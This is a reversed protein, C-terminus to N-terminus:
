LFVLQPVRLLVLALILGQSLVLTIITLKTSVFNRIVSVVQSKAISSTASASKMFLLHQLGKGPGGSQFSREQVEVPSPQFKKNGGSLDLNQGLSFTVLVCRTYACFAGVHTNITSYHM